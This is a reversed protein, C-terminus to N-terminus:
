CGCSLVSAATHGCQPLDACRCQAVRDLLRRMATLRAIQEDLERQKTRALEQWRRPPTVDAAFGHLLHRM